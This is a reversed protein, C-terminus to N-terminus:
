LFYQGTAAYNALVQAALANWDVEAPPPQEPPAPPEESRDLIGGFDAPTLAYVGLLEYEADVTGDRGFASPAYLQVVTSDGEVSYRIQPTPLGLNFPLSEVPQFPRTGLFVSLQASIDLGGAVFPNLEFRDTGQEYDTVVYRNGSGVGSGLGSPAGFFEGLFGRGGPSQFPPSTGAVRGVSFGDAGPGGSLIDAGYGGGLTDDGEGGLLTDDGPGGYLFDDGAGGAVLDPGDLFPLLGGNTGPLIFPEGPGTDYSGSGVLIDDGDGGLVTDSGYGAYVTDNGGGASILNNGPGTPDGANAEPPLPGRIRNDGYILDDGPGGNILDDGTGGEVSDGGSLADIVDDGGAALISDSDPTGVLMDSGDTGVIDAM